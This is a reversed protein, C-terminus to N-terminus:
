VVSKRDGTWLAGLSTAALMAVVTHVHHALYGAVRDGVSIGAAEMATACVRVRERLEDWTIEERNKESASIIAISGGDPNSAPYLLNEAFNLECGAFFEPKPFMASDNDFTSTPPKTAKIGTYDWIEQWFPGPNDVSWQWLDHYNALELRHKKAIHQQFRHLETTEPNPHRWLEINEDVDGNVAGNVTAM